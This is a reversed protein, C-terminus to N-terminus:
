TKNLLFFYEQALLFQSANHLNSYQRSQLQFGQDLWFSNSCERDKNWVVKLLQSMWDFQGYLYATILIQLFFM